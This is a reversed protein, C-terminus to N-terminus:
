VREALKVSTNSSDWEGGGMPLLRLSSGAGESDYWKYEELRM